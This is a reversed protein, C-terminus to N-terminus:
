YQNYRVAQNIINIQSGARYMNTEHRLSLHVLSVDTYVNSIINTTIYLLYVCCTIMEHSM